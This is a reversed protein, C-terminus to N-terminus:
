LRMIFTSSDAGATGDFTVDQDCEFLATDAADYTGAGGIVGDGAGSLTNVKDCVEDTLGTNAVTLHIVNNTTDYTWTGTTPPVPNSSLLNATVLAAIDAPNATNKAKYLKAAGAIQGAQAVLGSAKADTSSDTVGTGLYDVTIAGVIGMLIISVVLIILNSM